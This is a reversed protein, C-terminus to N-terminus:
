PLYYPYNVGPPPAKQYHAHLFTVIDTLQSVTMQGNYEPMPSTAGERRSKEVQQLYKASVIHQPQIIATVLQGYSKVLRVEGGLEYSIGAPGEFKPLNVGAVSHCQHCNLELFAAKGREADGDPLRFGKGMRAAPDQCSPLIQLATLALFLALSQATKM